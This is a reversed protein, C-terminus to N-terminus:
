GLFARLFDNYPIKETLSKDFFATLHFLEEETLNVSHQKLVKRFDQLSVFGTRSRDCSTLAQRMPRWAQLVQGQIRLMAEVFPSSPTGPSRLVRPQQVRVRALPSKEQPKLTLVFHRLFETYSFRSNNKMDYKLALQGFEGPTMKIDCSEMVALFEPVSVEGLGEADRERCKKLIARWSRYVEAKVKQEMPECNLLPTSRGGATAPRRVLERSKKYGIASSATKPRRVPSPTGDTCEAPFPSTREPSDRGAPSPPAEGSFRKLFERYDLNGYDNVPLQSWLDNFQDDTLRMFHQHCIDRFDEKSIVNIHAYDLNVIERSITYLRATVVEQIRSLIDKMSLAQTQIPRSFKEVKETWEDTTGQNIFNFCSLFDKWDVTRDRNVKVKGLLHRFQQDSLKFCFQDLVRRFELASVTGSGSTDFAAFAKQLTDYSDTVREKIKALAKEPSYGDFSEKRAAPEPRHGYELAGSGDFARLFDFYSLKGEDTSIGHRNLLHILQVEDAQYSHVKLVKHLDQVMVYGDNNRDLKAFATSFDQYFDRIIDKLERELQATQATGMSMQQQRKRQELPSMCKQEVVGRDATPGSEVSSIELGLKELFESHTLYGRGAQDYRSWLKEFEAPTIPLVFRYLIARLDRKRIISRGDHDFECFAQSLDHWRSQAKAVLYSHVQECVLDPDAELFQKPRSSSSWWPTGEPRQQSQFMRLFEPFNLTSGPGLGLLGLVRQYEKEKIIFSFSDFLDRFDRMTVIGDHNTDMKHFASFLDGSKGNLREKMQAICDEATMYQVQKGDAHHHSSCAPPASGSPVQLGECKTLFESYSLGGNKFGLAEILIQFQEDDVNISCDELVKKLDDKSVRGKCSNLLCQQISIDRQALREKLKKMVIKEVARSKAYHAAGKDAQKIRESSSASKRAEAKRFTESAPGGLQAPVGLSELFCRYLVGGSSSSMCSDCLKQFHSDSVPLGYTHLVKRLEERTVSGTDSPDYFELAESVQDWHASLKDRLLGEVTDWTQDPPPEKEGQHTETDGSLCKYGEWKEKVEFLELFRHYSVFGTHEPDLLVMLEKFQQNTMRLTLSEVIRRMERRAIKGVRSEDFLLFAKKLSPFAEQVHHQLKQLIERLSLEEGAGLVPNVRHNTIIPLTQGNANAVPDKFRALFEEWAIQDTARFGYHTMLEQFTADSMPFLFNSLASKLDEMSVFGRQTVDCAHLARRVNEHNLQMKNWFSTRVDDFTLGECPPNQCQTMQTSNRLQNEQDRHVAEWNLVLQTSEPVPQRSDGTGLSLKELFEKYSLTGSNNQSYHSWLRGFEKDSMPFCYSELVRRLEHHQILGDQNYDFLRFARTINRLNTGVKDKLRRQLEVLTMSRNARSSSCRSNVTWPRCYRGLFDMYPVTGDFRRSVQALLAQFQRGTLPLLFSEVVRRLEGPTVALRGEPDSARFARRLADQRGAARRQLAREVDAASLHEDPASPASSSSASRVSSSRPRPLIVIGRSVPRLDGPAPSAAPSGSMASACGRQEGQCGAESCEARVPWM